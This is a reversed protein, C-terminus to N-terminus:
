LLIKHCTIDDLTPNFFPLRKTKSKEKSAADNLQPSPQRQPELSQRRPDSAGGDAQHNGFSAEWAQKEAEFQRRREALEAEQQELQRRMQDARRQLDQESDKLKQNKEKVKMEFVAEMESKMSKLKLDHDRKEAEMQTMPDKGDTTRFKSEQAIGALKGFRYNEYHLNSTVERLDQMHTRLLLNRLARFDNHELNEVEVTGWPYVRARARQSSSGGRGEVTCNAGIVAFPMRERYGKIQGNFDDDKTSPRPPPFLPPRPLPPHPPLQRMAAPCDPFDYVRIKHQALENLITKKFDRLEDPTMCDAKALIPVVNARDSLRKMFEIDLPKLGHGTPAIFYLVCHVRSDLIQGRNVKQEATLHEQFRAEIYDIVPSWCNTNDVADGFGPTDILNLRLHVSNEKLLVTHSEVCVTKKIRKSPGPHDSNYLESSFLSNLLTSKGLGTEGVVMLNFEFGRRVARRYIQNPLNAYGVQHQHPAPTDSSPERHDLRYSQKSSNLASSSTDSTRYKALVDDGATSRMSRYSSATYPEDVSRKSTSM